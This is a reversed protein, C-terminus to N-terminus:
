SSGAWSPEGGPQARRRCIPPRSSRRRRAPCWDAHPPSVRWRALTDGAGEVRLTVPAISTSLSDEGLAIAAGAAARSLVHEVAVAGLRRGDAGNIPTVQVLRLGLASRTVFLDQPGVVREPPIDSPRGSWARAEERIADYVTVSIDDPHPSTRRVNALLDFLTRAAEPGAALDRAAPSTAITTAVEALAATMGDFERRFLSEVRAAATADTPGLWWRELGVGALGALVAATLGAVLLRRWSVRQSPRGRSFRPRDSPFPLPM